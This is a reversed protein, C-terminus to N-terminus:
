NICRRVEDRSSPVIVGGCHGCMVAGNKALWGTSPQNGERGGVMTGSLVGDPKVCALM